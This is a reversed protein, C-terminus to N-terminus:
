RRYRIDGSQWPFRFCYWRAFEPVGHDRPIGDLISTGAVTNIVGSSIRRVRYNGVDALLIDGMPRRVNVYYPVSFKANSRRGEMAGFALTDSGAVFQITGNALVRWLEFICLVLLNGNPEVATSVPLALLAKTAPGNNGDYQPEGYGYAGSGAFTSIVGTAQNIKRVRNNYVDVFYWM